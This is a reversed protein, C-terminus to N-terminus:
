AVEKALYQGYDGGCNPRYDGYGAIKGAVNFLERLVEMAKEDGWIEPDVLFEIACLWERILPRGRMIRSKKGRYNIVVSKPFVEYDKIPKKTKPNLLAFETKEVFIGATVASSATMKGVKRNATAALLSAKVWDGPLILEGNRNAYVRNAAQEEPGPLSSGTAITAKKAEIIMCAPNNMLLPRTGVLIVKVVKRDM